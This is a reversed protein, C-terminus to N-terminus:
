RSESPSGMSQVAVFLSFAPWLLGTAHIGMTMSWKVCLYKNIICAGHHHWLHIWDCIVSCWRALLFHILCLDFRVHQHELRSFTRFSKDTRKSMFRRRVVVQSHQGAARPLAVGGGCHCHLRVFYTCYTCTRICRSAEFSTKVSGAFAELM